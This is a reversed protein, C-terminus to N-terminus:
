SKESKKLLGSPIAVPSGNATRIREIRFIELESSVKLRDVDNPFDERHCGGYLFNGVGPYHIQEDQHHTTPHLSVSIASKARIFTGVRKRCCNSPFVTERTSLMPLSSKECVTVTPSLSLNTCQINEKFASLVSLGTYLVM